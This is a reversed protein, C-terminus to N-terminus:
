SEHDAFPAQLVDTHKARELLKHRVLPPHVHVDGSHHHGVTGLHRVQGLSHRTLAPTRLTGRTLLDPM